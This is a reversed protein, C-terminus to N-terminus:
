AAPFRGPGIDREMVGRRPTTHLRFALTSSDLTWEAPGGEDAAWLDGGPQVKLRGPPV